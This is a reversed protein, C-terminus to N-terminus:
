NKPQQKKYAWYASVLMGGLIFFSIGYAIYLDKM